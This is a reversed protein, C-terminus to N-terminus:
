PCGKQIPLCRGFFAGQIWVWGMALVPVDFRLPHHGSGRSKEAPASLFGREGAAKPPEESPRAGESRRGGAASPDGEIGM